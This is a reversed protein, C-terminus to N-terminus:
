LPLVTVEPRFLEICDRYRASPPGFIGSFIPVYSLFSAYYLLRLAWCRSGIWPDTSYAHKPINDYPGAISCLPTCAWPGSRSAYTKRQTNCLRCGYIHVSRDRSRLFSTGYRSPIAYHMTSASLSGLGWWLMWIPRCARFVLRHPGTHSKQGTRKSKRANHGSVTVLSRGFWIM